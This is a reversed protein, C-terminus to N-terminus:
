DSLCYAQPLSTNLGTDGFAATQEPLRSGPNFHSVFVGRNCWKTPVRDGQHKTKHLQRRSWM